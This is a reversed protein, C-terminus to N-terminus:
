WSSEECMDIIYSDKTAGDDIRKYKIHPDDDEIARGCAKCISFREDGVKLQRGSKGVQPTEVGADDGPVYVDGTTQAEKEARSLADDM